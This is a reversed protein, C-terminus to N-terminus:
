ADVKLEYKPISEKYLHNHNPQFLYSNSSKRDIVAAM